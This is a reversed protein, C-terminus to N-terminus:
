NESLITVQDEKDSIRDISVNIPATLEIIRLIQDLTKNKLITGSFSLNRIKSEPINIKVAYIRELKVAISELTESDFILYGDKWSTYYNTSVQSVKFTNDTSNYAFLEGPILTKIIKNEKSLLVIKGEVLTTESFKDNPYDSVNFSTGLVKINYNETRVTFPSEADHKVEFYAEGSISIERHSTTFDAPYKIQTHANMWVKTGDPLMMEATQGSPTNIELWSKNSPLFFSSPIVFRAILLTIFIAAAYKSFSLFIRKQKTTKKDVVKKLLRKLEKETELKEEQSKGTLAVLNKLRYYENKNEESSNIWTLIETKKEPDSHGVLFDLIKKEKM